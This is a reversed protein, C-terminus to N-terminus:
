EYKIEMNEVEEITTCAKISLEILQQQNVRPAVYEAISLSLALLNTYNWDTCEEGTSNWKLPYEIGIKAAREYSALNGNLLAQKEESVSYYKNDTYLLPHEELWIKLLDKSSKIKAKKAEEINEYQPKIEPEVFAFTGDELLTMGSSVKTEDDVEILNAIFSAPYRNEIPVEPFAPNFTPIVELVTNTNKDLNIYM